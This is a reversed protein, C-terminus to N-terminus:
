VHRGGMAWSVRGIHGLVGGRSGEGPMATPHPIGVPVHLLKALSKALRTNGYGTPGIMLINSKEIEVTDAGEGAPEATLAMVRKYHNYVAVSLTRKADDQGIVFQDLHRKIEAPKPVSLSKLQRRADQSFEKDLVGKCVGVCVDCIFVGPGAILKRVWARSKGWCGVLTM